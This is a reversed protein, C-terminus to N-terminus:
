PKGFGTEAGVRARPLCNIMAWSSSLNAPFRLEQQCLQVGPPWSHQPLFWSEGICYCISVIEAKCESDLLCLVDWGHLTIIAGSLLFRSKNFDQEPAFSLDSDNNVSVFLRPDERYFHIEESFQKPLQTIIIIIIMLKPRCHTTELAARTLSSKVLCNDWPM